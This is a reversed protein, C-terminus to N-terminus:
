QNTRHVRGREPKDDCENDVGNIMCFGGTTVLEPKKRKTVLVFEGSPVSLVKAIDASTTTATM